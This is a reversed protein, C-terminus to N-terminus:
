AQFRRGSTSNRTATRAGRAHQAADPRQQRHRADPRGPHRLRPAQVHLGEAGLVVPTAPVPFVRNGLGDKVYVFVNALSGGSGVVYAETTLPVKCNPDSKTKIPQNPPPTGALTVHGTVNGATAPDVPNSVAKPAETQEQPQGAAAPRPSTVRRALCAFVAVRAARQARNASM